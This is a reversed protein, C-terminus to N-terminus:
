AAKEPHITVVNQLGFPGILSFDLGERECWERRWAEDNQLGSAYFDTVTQKSRGLWLKISDEPVRARRLTETRFVGPWCLNLILTAM